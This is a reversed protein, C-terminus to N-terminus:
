PTFTPGYLYLYLIFIILQISGFIFQSNDKIITLNILRGEDKVLIKKSDFFSIIDEYLDNIVSVINLNINDNKDVLFTMSNMHKKLLDIQEQNGFKIYLPLYNIIVNKVRSSNGGDMKLEDINLKKGLKNDINNMTKKFYKNFKRISYVDKKTESLVDLTNISIQLMDYTGREYGMKIISILYFLLIGLIFLFFGIYLFLNHYITLTILFFGISFLLFPILFFSGMRFMSLYIIEMLKDLKQIIVFRETIDGLTFTVLNILFASLLLIPLLIKLNLERLFNLEPTTPELFALIFIFYFYLAIVIIISRIIVIKSFKSKKFTNSM